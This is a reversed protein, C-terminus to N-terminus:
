RRLEEPHRRLYALLRRRKEPGRVQGGKGPAAMEGLVRHDTQGAKQYITRWRSKITPLALDLREALELDTAGALAARLLAREAPSFAYRPAVFVFAPAMPDGPNRLADEATMGVLTPRAAGPVASGEPQSVRGEYRTLVRGWGRAVFEPPIEDWIEQVVDRIPYGRHEDNFATLLRFRGMRAVDPHLAAAEGYHLILVRLGAESQAGLEGPRLIPSAGSLEAQITRATLFPSTGQQAEEMWEDSVFASGGFCVRQASEGGSLDEVVSGILAEDRLLGEWFPPLVRVTEADYAASRALIAACPAIDTADFPRTRLDM